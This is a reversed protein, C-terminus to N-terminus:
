QTVGELHEAVREVKAKARLEDVSKKLKQILLGNKIRDWVETLPQERQPEREVLQFIHFKNDAGKVYNSLGNVQDIAFAAAELGPDLSIVGAAAADGESAFSLLKDNTRMVWEAITGGQAANKALSIQQALAGFDVSESYLRSLAQKAQDESAVVLQRLRRREPVQFGRKNQEYFQEVEAASVDLRERNWRLWEQTFFGRRTYEWRRQTDTARDLGRAVADQTMLENNILEDLLEDLQKKTLPTWPQRLSTVYAKVEQVRFEIDAKSLPVGNVTAVVDGPAVVPRNPVLTSQPTAPMPDKADAAPTDKWPWKDCGAAGIVLVVILAYRLHSFFRGQNQTRPEPNQAVALFGYGWRVLGSHTRGRVRLGSGQAKIPELYPASSM